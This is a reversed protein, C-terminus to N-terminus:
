NCYPEARRMQAKVGFSVMVFDRIVCERLVTLQRWLYHSVETLQNKHYYMSLCLCLGGQNMNIFYSFSFLRRILHMSNTQFIIQNTRHHNQTSMRQTASVKFSTQNKRHELRTLSLGPANLLYLLVHLLVCVCCPCQGWIFPLFAFSHHITSEFTAAM